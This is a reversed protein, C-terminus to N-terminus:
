IEVELIQQYLKNKSKTDIIMSLLNLITTNSLGNQRALNIFENIPQNINPSNSSNLKIILVFEGKLNAENLQAKIESLDGYFYTEHIKTMEKALCARCNGLVSQILDIVEMVKHPPLYIIIPCELSKLKALKTKIENHKSPLFGQFFFEEGSFGSATLATILASPGPIIMIKHNQSIAFDIIQAGPDSIVPSGADSILAVNENNNLAQLLLEKRKYENFKHCSILPKNIQYHNLLKLSVRTDEAFILNCENLSKIARFSIDELNGIPTSIIYLIGPM